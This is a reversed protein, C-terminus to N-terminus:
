HLIEQLLLRKPYSIGKMRRRLIVATEPSLKREEPPFDWLLTKIIMEEKGRLEQVKKKINEEVQQKLKALFNTLEEISIERLMLASGVAGWVNIALLNEYPIPKRKKDALNLLQPISLKGEVTLFYLDIIDKVEARDEFATIKNVGMNLLNDVYFNKIRKAKEIPREKVINIKLFNETDVKVFVKGFIQSASDIEVRYGLSELSVVLNHVIDSVNGTTTFIDIDESLRHLFYFRSLATGGTLYLLNGFNKGVINLIKDQVPYLVKEYFEVEEPTALRFNM